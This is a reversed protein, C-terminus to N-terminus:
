IGPHILELSRVAYSTVLVPDKEWWRGSSNVWFGDSSQLNILKLALDQRWNIQKGGVIPLVEAGYITLAKSMTHYYYYLGALGMGPNEEVTYNRLTWDYVSKVRPDDKKLDAYIYSMLGAYSMSGYSRLTKTGNPLTVEGAKSELPDYVFGGINQPDGSVWSQKNYEPHNQCRQLFAVAADWNLEKAESVDAYHTDRTQRLAEIAFATNSIDSHPGDDGYGVGGEYPSSQGNRKPYHGQQGIIFERAKSLTSAYKVPDAAVLASMSVSTNYNALEKGYIGGDPKVCNLLYNYGKEVFEPPKAKMVGSPECMYSTLVLASIAPYEPHSWYSDRDQKSQLFDLGKEIAREIELQLSRDKVTPKAGEISTGSEALAPLPPLSAGLTASAGLALRIFTSRKM